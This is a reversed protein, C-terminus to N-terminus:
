YIAKANKLRFPMVQYWCVRLDTIFSIHEWDQSTMRIQNYCSFADIFTLLEHSSTVYVLQDIWSLPYNYKLYAKNLNTYDICEKNKM